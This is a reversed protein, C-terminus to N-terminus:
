RIFKSALKRANQIEIEPCIELIESDSISSITPQKERLQRIADPAITLLQNVLKLADIYSQLTTNFSQDFERKVYLKSYHTALGEELVNSCRKGQPSLLHICEHALQYCACAENGITSTNLQIAINGCNNPFWIQPPNDNAIFEIGLITYNKDRVGYRNEADHLMHGLRTTLTWSYGNEIKQAILEKM